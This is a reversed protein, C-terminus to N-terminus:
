TWVTRKCFNKIVIYKLPACKKVDISWNWCFLNFFEQFKQISYGNMKYLFVLYIVSIIIFYKVHNNCDDCVFHIQILVIINNNNAFGYLQKFLCFADSSVLGNLFSFIKNNNNNRNSNGTLTCYLSVEFLVFLYCATCLWM